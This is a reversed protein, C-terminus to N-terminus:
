YVREVAHSMLEAVKVAEFDTEIENSKVATANLESPVLINTNSVLSCTEIEVSDVAHSTVEADAGVSVVLINAEPNELAVKVNLGSPVCIYIIFRLLGTSDKVSDVAHSVVVAVNSEPM